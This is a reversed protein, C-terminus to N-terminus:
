LSRGQLESIKRVSRLRSAAPWSKLGMSKVNLSEPEFSMVSNHNCSCTWRLSPCVHAESSTPLVHINWRNKSSFFPSDAVVAGEPPTAAARYRVTSAATNTQTSSTKQHISHQTSRQELVLRSTTLVRLRLAISQPGWVFASNGAHLISGDRTLWERGRLVRALAGHSADRGRSQVTGNHQPLHRIKLDVEGRQLYLVVLFKIVSIKNAKSFSQPFM